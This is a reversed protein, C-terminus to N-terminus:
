GVHAAASAKRDFLNQDLNSKASMVRLSWFFSIFMVTFMTFWMPVHWMLNRISEMIVPQFPFGFGSYEEQRVVISEKPWSFDPSVVLNKTGLTSAFYITGDVDNNVYLGFDDSPITDSLQFHLKLHADDLIEVSSARMVHTTGAKLFAQMSSDAKKFHTSYGVLEISNEGPHFPEGSVDLVGPDLPHWFSFVATYILLLMALVKWWHKM